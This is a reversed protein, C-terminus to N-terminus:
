FMSVVCISRFYFALCPFLHARKVETLSAVCRGCYEQIWSLIKCGIWTCFKGPQNPESSPTLPNNEALLSTLHLHRDQSRNHNVTWWHGLPPLLVWQWSNAHLERWFLPLWWHAQSFLQWELFGLSFSLASLLRIFSLLSFHLGRRGPSSYSRCCYHSLLLEWPVPRPNHAPILQGSALLTRATFVALLVWPQLYLFGM